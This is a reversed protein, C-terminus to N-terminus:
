LVAETWLVVPLSSSRVFKGWTYISNAHKGPGSSEALSEDCVVAIDLQSYVGLPGDTGRFRGGAKSDAGTM